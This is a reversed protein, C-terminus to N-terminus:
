TKAPLPELAEVDFEEIATLSEDHYMDLAELESALFDAMGNDDRNAVVVSV